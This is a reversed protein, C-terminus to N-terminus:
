KVEYVIEFPYSCNASGYFVNLKGTGQDIQVRLINLSAVNGTDPLTMIRVNSKPVPSINAVHGWDDFFGATLRLNVQLVAMKGYQRVNGSISSVNTNNVSTFTGEKYSTTITSTAM